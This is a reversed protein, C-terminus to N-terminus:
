FDLNIGWVFNPKEYGGMLYKATKNSAMTALNEINMNFRAGKIMCKKLVNAPLTYSLSINKIRVNSASLVNVDAYNYIDYLDSSFLPDDAFLLRPISTHQEDGPQMWRNKIDANIGAWISPEYSWTAYNYSNSLMPLFYNRMKHGGAYVFLASLSWNKYRLSTGFSGSYKPTTTGAYEIADFDAPNYTVANGKADYVQPLGEESLGAWKYAYIAHYPNGVIPYASAYDLQLLYFPAKVNVYTVENKNYAFLLNASWTWDKTKIIDGSLSLEVGRNLMEGNNISYTNYGFGETPVGMTNALLNEGKKNYYDISANLRGHFVAVDFGINITTTKEWSLDPNPRSGVQGYNGGVNYNPYYHATLYPASDKAVNGGIGYSARMKLMDLWAVNSLWSERHMNWSGGLSWIPKNQSSDIGWLNSKDYRISATATYKDDFTYAANGYVSVYRNQLERLYTGNSTQSWSGSMLIGSLTALSA